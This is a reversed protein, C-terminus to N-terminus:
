HLAEARSSKENAKILEKKVIIDLKTVSGGWFVAVGPRRSWDRERKGHYREFLFPTAVGKIIVGDLIGLMPILNLLGSILPQHKALLCGNQHSYLLSNKDLNELCLSDSQKLCSQSSNLCYKSLSNPWRKLLCCLLSSFVLPFHKQASEVNREAKWSNHKCFM